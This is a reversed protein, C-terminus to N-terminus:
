PFISKTQLILKSCLWWSYLGYKRVFTAEMLGYLLVHRASKVIFGGLEYTIIILDHIFIKSLLKKYHKFISDALNTYKSFVYGNSM